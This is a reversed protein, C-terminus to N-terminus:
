GHLGELVLRENCSTCCEDGHDLNRITVPELDALGLKHSCPPCWLYGLRSTFGVPCDCLYFGCHRCRGDYPGAHHGPTGVSQSM